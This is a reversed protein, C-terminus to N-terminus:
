GGRHVRARLEAARSKPDRGIRKALGAKITKLAERDNRNVLDDPVIGSAVLALQTGASVRTSLRPVPFGPVNVALLAVLRLSHGVRRWDGSLKAARLEAIRGAPTGPKVAGAFWIGFDDNGVAIDAVKSGTNDYHALAQQTTAGFVPAHGTGLTIGGVAVREGEATLVEGLLFHSHYEEYPPQVCKDFGIHCSDWLAAHGYIRGDETVTLPTPKTFGPNAFWKAPPAEYGDGSALIADVVSDSLSSYSFRQPERGAARLHSALHEYAARREAMSMGLKPDSLLHGIAVSCAMLNPGGISGDRAIDHHLLRCATKHVAGSRVRKVDVYAFAQSATTFAMTSALRGAATVEDWTSASTGSATPAGTPVPMMPAAFEAPVDGLQIQAEVFAPLAVLTAGRIRGAHFIMKDPPPGFLLMIDDGGSDEAPADGAEDPFVYEVDSDKVSDADISVGRLFQERVQRLAEAGDISGSDFVGAGRIVTANTPDRWIQDIRGVVVSEDTSGGHSTVKQWMLPVPLNAWTLSGASFERGDGTEVGEVVLIGNWNTEADFGYLSDPLDTNGVGGVDGTATPAATEVPATMTSGEGAAVISLVNYLPFDTVEGGFAVRLRDFTIPGTNKTAATIVPLPADTYALCVHPSWPSHQMPLCAAWIDCLAAEVACRVNAPEDGGVNMVVCPSDGNPNWVGVGFADARVAPQGETLEQMAELVAQQSSLPWNVVEGLFFLTLHLEEIPEGGSVLIREADEQSPVLAIMAGTHQMEDRADVDSDDDGDPITEDTDDDLYPPTVAATVNDTPMVCSEGDTCTVKPPVDDDFVYAITCRCNVVEGAPATDDHPRSMQYGGVIFNANIPVIQHDAEAHDFRTRSDETALWEKKEDDGLVLRAQEYSGANSASLVETRAVANARGQAFDGVDKIRQALKETSEGSNMGEILSTRMRDYLENGVGQLLNQRESLYQKSLANSVGPIGQGPELQMTDALNHAIELSGAVYTGMIYPLLVQQVEAAWDDPVSNVDDPSEGAAVLGRALRTVARDIVRTMAGHVIPTFEEVRRDLERWTHGIVRRQTM